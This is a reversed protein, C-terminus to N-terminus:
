TEDAAKVSACSLRAVEGRLWALDARDKVLQNELEMVRKQASDRAACEERYAIAIMERAESGEALGMEQGMGHAHLSVDEEHMRARCRAKRFAERVVRKQREVRDSTRQLVVRLRDLEGAIIETHKIELAGPGGRLREEADELEPSSERPQLVSALVAEAMCMDVEQHEAPLADWPLLWSPKPCPQRRAWALWADRLVRGLRERRSEDQEGDPGDWWHECHTHDDRAECPTEEAGRYSCSCCTGNVPKQSTPATAVSGREAAEAEECAGLRLTRFRSDCALRQPRGTKTVFLTCKGNRLWKCHLCHENGCHVSRRVLVVRKSSKMPKDQEHHYLKLSLLRLLARIGEKVVKVVTSGGRAPVQILVHRSDEELVLVHVTNKHIDVQDSSVIVAIERGDADQFQVVKETPFLGPKIKVPLDYLM